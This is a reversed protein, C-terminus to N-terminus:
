EPYDEPIAASQMQRLLEPAEARLFETVKGTGLLADNLDSLIKFKVALKMGAKHEALALERMQKADVSDVARQRALDLMTPLTVLCAWIQKWTEWDGASLRPITMGSALENIHTVMAAITNFDVSSITTETNHAMPQILM